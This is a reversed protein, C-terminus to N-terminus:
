KELIPIITIHLNNKEALNIMHKTGPSFMDWFVILQEAFGETIMQENRIYGARKGYVDWRANFVICPINNDKSYKIALTDAGRAGGSIVETINLKSCERSLLTYDTFTRSGAIITKIVM